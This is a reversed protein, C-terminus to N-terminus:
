VPSVLTTGARSPPARAMKESAKTSGGLREVCESPRDRQCFIVRDSFEELPATGRRLGAAYQRALTQAAARNLWLKGRAADRQRACSGDPGCCAEDRRDSSSASHGIGLEDEQDRALWVGGAVVGKGVHGPQAHALEDLNEIAIAGLGHGQDLSAIRHVEHMEARACRGVALIRTDLDVLVRERRRFLRRGPGCPGREFLRAAEDLPLRNAVCLLAVGIM